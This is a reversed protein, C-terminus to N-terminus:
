YMLTCVLITTITLFLFHEYCAASHLKLRNEFYFKDVGSTAVVYIEINGTTIM